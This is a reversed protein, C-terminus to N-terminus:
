PYSCYIHGSKNKTCHTSSCTSLKRDVFKRIKGTAYIKSNNFRSEKMISQTVRVQNQSITTFVDPHHMSVSEWYAVSNAVGKFPFETPNLEHIQFLDRMELRLKAKKKLNVEVKKGFLSSEKTKLTEENEKIMYGSKRSDKLLM